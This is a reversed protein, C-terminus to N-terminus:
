FNMNASSNKQERRFETLRAQIGDRAERFRKLLVEESLPEKSAPDPFPWHLKKTRQSHLVPCMEEAWLTVIYDLGIIFEASLLDVSKSFRKSINVGVEKM